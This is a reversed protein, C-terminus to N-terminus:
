TILSLINSNPNKTLSQDHVVSRPTPQPRIHHQCAGTGKSALDLDAAGVGDRLRIGFYRSAADCWVDPQPQVVVLCRTVGRMQLVTCTLLLLTRTSIVVNSEVTLSISM